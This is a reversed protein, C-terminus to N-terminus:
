RYKRSRPGFYGFHVLLLGAKFSDVASADGGHYSRLMECRGSSADM